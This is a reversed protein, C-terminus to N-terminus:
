HWDEPGERFDFTTSGQKEEANQWWQDARAKELIGLEKSVSKQPMM